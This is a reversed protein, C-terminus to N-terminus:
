YWYVTLETLLDIEIDDNVQPILGRQNPDDSCAKVKWLSKDAMMDTSVIIHIRM